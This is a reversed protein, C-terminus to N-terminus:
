QASAVTQNAERELQKLRRRQKKNLDGLHDERVAVRNEVRATVESTTRAM